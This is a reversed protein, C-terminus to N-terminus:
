IGNCNAWSLYIQFTKGVKRTDVYYGLSKLYTEISKQKALQTLEMDYVVCYQGSVSRVMIANFLADLDSRIALDTMQKAESALM